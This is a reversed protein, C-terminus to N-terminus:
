KQSLVTKIQDYLKVADQNHSLLLVAFQEAQDGGKVDFYAKGTDVLVMKGPIVATSIINQRLAMTINYKYKAKPNGFQNMFGVPNQKARMVFEHRIREENEEPSDIDIGFHLAVPLMEELSAEWAAREAEFAQKARSAQIQRDKEADILRYVPPVVNVPNEVGERHDQIMMADMLAKNSGSVFLSGNNFEIYNKPNELQAKTPEPKQQDKVWISQYGFIYRWPEIEKSQPNYAVGENMWLFTPPYPNDMVEGTKWDRPKATEDANVLQFQYRRKYDYTWEKRKFNPNGPSKKEPVQAFDPATATETAM